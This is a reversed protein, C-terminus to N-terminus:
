AQQETRRSLEDAAHAIESAGSSVAGTSGNIACVLESLRAAAKNFDSRLVEYEDPFPQSIRRTLDGDALGQLAEALAVVIKERESQVRAAERADAEKAATARARESEQEERLRRRELAAERFVGISRAMDGIECCRDTFPPESEYDGEALRGMFKAITVIPQSVGRSMLVIVGVVLLIVALTVGGLVLYVQKEVAKASAEQAAAYANAGKVVEDIVARHARYATSARDIADDAGANDGRAVAPLLGHEVASWFNRAEADSKSTLLDKLNPPIDAAQWYARREDYAKHLQALRERHEALDSPADQLLKAELYAEVVYVPPPLIDAVLDKGDVIHNYVPGGVKLERLALGSAGILALVGVIICAGFLM